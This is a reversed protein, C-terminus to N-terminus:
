LSPTACTDRKRRRSGARSAMTPFSSCSRTQRTIVFIFCDAVQGTAKVQRSVTPQARTLELGEVDRNIEMLVQCLAASRIDIETRQVQGRRDVIRRVVLVVKKSVQRKQQVAKNTKRLTTSFTRRPLVLSNKCRLAIDLFLCVHRLQYLEM